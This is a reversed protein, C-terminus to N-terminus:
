TKAFFLQIDGYFEFVDIDELKAYRHKYTHAQQGNVCVTFQEKNCSITVQFLQDKKFPVAGCKEEEGWTGNEFTNRVVVNEEFLSKYHLAVGYRHRLNFVVMKSDPNPVGYVVIDKEPQLGGNIVAKYPVVVPNQYGIFDLDMLKDVLITDVRTFPIRHKYDMFYKGNVSIKYTEKTVLIQLIFPQNQLLFSDSKCEESGWCSNQFTNLVVTALGDYRPNFHLAIDANSESGCQLNVNFRGAKPLIRGIVIVSKGEQLGGLLPGTFPMKPKCFPQQQSVAM